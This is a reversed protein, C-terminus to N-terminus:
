LTSFKVDQCFTRSGHLAQSRLRPDPVSKLRAAFLTSSRPAGMVFLFSSPLVGYLSLFPIQEAGGFSTVVLTDAIPDLLANAFSCAFFLACMPLVKRFSAFPCHFAVTLARVAKRTRVHHLPNARAKQAHTHRGPFRGRSTAGWFSGQGVRRARFSGWAGRRIAAPRKHIAQSEAIQRTVRGERRRASPEVGARQQIRGHTTQKEVRRCYM